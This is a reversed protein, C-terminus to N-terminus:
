TFTAFFISLLGTLLWVFVAVVFLACLSYNIWERLTLREPKNFDRVRRM